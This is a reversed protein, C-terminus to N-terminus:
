VNALSYFFQGISMQWFIRLVSQIGLIQHKVQTDQILYIAWKNYTFFECIMFFSNLM